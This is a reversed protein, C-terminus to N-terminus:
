PFTFYEKPNVAEEKIYIGFHLHPVMSMGTSGSTGLRDGKKITQGNLVFIEDLQAYFTKM